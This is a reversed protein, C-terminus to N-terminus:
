FFPFFNQSCKLKAIQNRSIKAASQMICINGAKNNKQQQKEQQRNEKDHLYKTMRSLSSSKKCLFCRSRCCSSCSSCRESHQKFLQQLQPQRQAAAANGSGSIVEPLPRLRRCHRSDPPTFFRLPSLSRSSVFLFASNPQTAQVARTAWVCLQVAPPPLRQCLRLPLRLRLRLRCHLRQQFRLLLRLRASM